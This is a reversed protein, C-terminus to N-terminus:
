QVNPLPFPSVTIKPEVYVPEVSGAPSKCMIWTGDAASPSFLANPDAQPMVLYGRETMWQAKQPSTYQTAYPFGYGVSDCFKTLKGSVESFTYTYTALNAQDRKELILKLNRREQFHTINPMGVQNVAEKQLVEQRQKEVQDANQVPEECAVTCLTLALIGGVVVLVRNM